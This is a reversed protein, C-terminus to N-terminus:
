NGSAALARILQNLGTHTTCDIAGNDPNHSNFRIPPLSRETM